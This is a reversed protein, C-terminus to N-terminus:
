FLWSILSYWTFKKGGEQLREAKQREFEEEEADFIDKCTVLDADEPRIAKSKTWLKHGVYFVVYAPIGIYGTIFTRYDFTDGLFVTFNKILCILVTFFISIYTGYPQFPAKYRFASRDVGQAKLANYFSMYTILISLWTLLGFISVVNVFHGFITTSLSSVNMYALLCFLVCVGLAYYPIGWRNTVSFIKPAIGNVSLGYLTRSGIYLDSNSASLIFILICANIIHPLVPIGANIIAVVFPSAAASTSRSTAFILNDDDYAVCMGLLLVSVCYFIVIRYFTLRIANPIAHRANGLEGFTIGVLETGLYLFVATVLVSVFAVFKGKDGTITDSYAEFAGPTRWYRFGLRDHNPGGGLMIIFLLIILGVVTVVKLSSLWFELEGFVKVGILNVLVIVVLIVTIWVGPNVRDRDIWYQIVLAGATLQNPTVILYKILYSYGVAFGVSPDCYRTAYGSFGDPLPIYTAMEGLCCMVMFVLMGVFSYSIFVSAPGARALSSGTGIILGTGLAGGLLIMTVHRAKLDRKLRHGEKIAIPTSESARLAYEQTHQSLVPNVDSFSLDKEVDVSKEISSNSM